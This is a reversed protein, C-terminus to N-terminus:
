HARAQRAIALFRRWEPTLEGQYAEYGRKYVAM